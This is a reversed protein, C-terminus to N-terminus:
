RDREKETTNTHKSKFDIEVTILTKQSNLADKHAKLRSSNESLAEM